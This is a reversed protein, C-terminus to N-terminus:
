INVVSRAKDTSTLELDFRIKLTSPVIVHDISGWPIKIKVKQGPYAINFTNVTAIHQRKCKFAFQPRYEIM